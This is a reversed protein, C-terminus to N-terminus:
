ISTTFLSVPLVSVHSMSVPGGFVRDLFAPALVEDFRALLDNNEAGAGPIAGVGNVGARHFMWRVWAEPPNM